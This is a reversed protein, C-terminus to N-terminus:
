QVKLTSDRVRVAVDPHDCFLGDVRAQVLFFELWAEFTRAYGPVEERRFTYPHLRLGADRLL